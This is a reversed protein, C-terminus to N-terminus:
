ERVIACFVVNKFLDNDDDDDDEVCLVVSIEGTKENNFRYTASTSDLVSADVTKISKESKDILTVATKSDIVYLIGDDVGNVMVSLYGDNKDYGTVEAFGISKSYDEFDESGDVDYIVGKNFIDGKSGIEDDEVLGDTTLAVIMGASCLKGGDAIGDVNNEITGTFPNYLSYTRVTSDDNTQTSYDRVFRVEAVDGNSGKLESNLVGYFVILNEYKTSNINNGLVIEAKAFKTGEKISPLNDYDYTNIVNESADDKDVSKIIIQTYPKVTVWNIGYTSKLAGVEFNKGSVKDFTTNTLTTYFQGNEDKGQVNGITVLDPDSSDIMKFYYAGNKDSKATALKDLYKTFPAADDLDVEPTVVADYYKDSTAIDRAKVSKVEGDNYVTVYEAAKLKNGEMVTGTTTTEEVVIVWNTDTGVMSSVGTTFVLKGNKAFYYESDTTTNYSFLGEDDCLDSNTVVAKANEFYITEGTTIKYWDESYSAHTAEKATLVEAIKAYNADPCVYALVIDEDKASVGEVMTKDIFLDLNEVDTETIDFSGKISSDEDDNVTAVTYNKVFLYEYKGDGNCDICDLEGLGGLYIQSLYGDNIWKENVTDYTGVIGDDLAVTVPAFELYAEEDELEDKDAGDVLTIFKSNYKATDKTSKSFSYPADFLYAKVGDLELCGNFKKYEKDAGDYYKDDTTGSVTGFAVDDFSVTTKKGQATAGLIDYEGDKTERVFMLIDSMFYDDPKGALGLESFEREGLDEIIEDGDEFYEAYDVVGNSTLYVMDEDEDPRDVKSNFKFLLNPTAVIRQSIKKVDFVKEAVTEHVEEPTTGLSIPTSGATGAPVVEGDKYFVVGLSKNKVTTEATEAYFMNALIIAVDGRTLETSYQIDSPLDEDLGLEEAKDIFSMPYSYTSDAYGLARVIMTYADQLIITGEPEFTTKSTGKIIGQNNAWSIMFFFTSDKLDTFPTTNVGGEQSKGGKMMRYIFAAMQQRQVKEATGFTESSTGKTVGLSVLLEVSDKLATNSEDVDNFKASASTIVASVTMLAALVLSLFRKSNRM